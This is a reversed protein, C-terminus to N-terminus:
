GASIKLTNSDNWLQGANEPDSTPLNAMMVVDGTTTLDGAVTTVSAAGFGVTVDVENDASGGTLILGYGNGGDHNAVGLKLRGSEQGHTAVDIESLIRSYEQFNGSADEGSFYIEGLNDNTAATGGDRDKVFNLSAMENADNSTNKITVIPDDENASQFTVTDTNFEVDGEFYVTNRFRSVLDWINEGIWKM